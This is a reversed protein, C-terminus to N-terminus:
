LPNRQRWAQAPDDAPERRAQDGIMRERMIKDDAAGLWLMGLTLRLRNGGSGVVAAVDTAFAHLNAQERATM